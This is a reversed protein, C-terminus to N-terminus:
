AVRDFVGVVEVLVLEEGAELDDLCGFWVPFADYFGEFDCFYSGKAGEILVFELLFLYPLKEAM